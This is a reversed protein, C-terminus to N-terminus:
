DDDRDDDEFADDDDRGHTPRFYHSLLHRAVKRGLKTGQETSNRYHMGGYVRARLVEDLLDSFVAWSV